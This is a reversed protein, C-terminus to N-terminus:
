DAPWASRESGGCCCLSLAVAGQAQASTRKHAQASTRKYVFSPPLVYGTALKLAPARACLEYHSALVEMLAPFSSSIAIAAPASASGLAAVVASTAEDGLADRNMRLDSLALTHVFPHEGLGTHDMAVFDGGGACDRLAAELKVFGAESARFLAPPQFLMGLQLALGVTLAWRLRARAAWLESFSLAAVLSALAYAPLRVNDDGGPHARGLASAVVAAALLLHLLVAAPERRSVVRYVCLGALLPLYVCLDVLVFSALLSPRLGHRAPVTVCYTWVWGDSWLCLAAIGLALAIWAGLVSRWGDCCVVGVSAAALLLLAHQKAFCALTLLSLGQLFRRACLREVGCLSLAMFVADVRALDIFAGCYGYGFAFLGAALPGAQKGARALALLCVGFALVSALRAGWLAGHSVVLGLYMPVYSLPPYVFPVFDARPAAYLPLGHLLRQAHLVSAGEMWELPWPSGSRGALCVGLYVCGLLLVLAGLRKM